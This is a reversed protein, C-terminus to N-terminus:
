GDFKIELRCSGAGTHMCQTQELHYSASFYEAAGAILGEALHCMKRPSCYIMVLSKEDPDEYHFMPLRSGPYLKSVDVHIVSDVQLLFEKLNDSELIMSEHMRVFNKFLYEGYTKVLVSTEIGSVVSAVEVIRTLSSDPYISTSVFADDELQAKDLIVQLTHLGFKEEIMDTLTALVVGKM